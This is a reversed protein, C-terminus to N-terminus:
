KKIFTSAKLRAAGVLVEIEIRRRHWGALELTEIAALEALSLGLFVVGPLAHQPNVDDPVMLAISAGDISQIVHDFGLAIAPAFPAYRGILGAMKEPNQLKGCVFANSAMALVDRGEDVASLFVLANARDDYSPEYM